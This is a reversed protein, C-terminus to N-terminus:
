QVLVVKKTQTHDGARFKAFYVGGPLGTANWTVAHHGSVQKGDVLTEILQGSIDYIKVSITSTFPLAYSMITGARFPNPCSEIISSTGPEEEVGPWGHLKYVRQNGGYAIKSSVNWWCPADWALGLPYPVPWSTSDVVSGDGPDMKYTKRTQVDIGYLYGNAWEISLMYDTPPVFSEIVAGDSPDLKFIMPNSCYQSHWLYSGDWAIGWSDPDSSGYQPLNFVDVVTRTPPDIKYLQGNQESVFWLHSGDWALGGSSTAGSPNAFSDVVTGNTDLENIRLTELDAIWFTSGGRALGTPFTGMTPFSYVTDIDSISSPSFSLAKGEPFYIGGVHKGHFDENQGASLIGFHLSLIIAVLFSLKGKM